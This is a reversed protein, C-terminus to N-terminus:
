LPGLPIEQHGSHCVGLAGSYAKWGRKPSTGGAFDVGTDILAPSALHRVKRAIAPSALKHLAEHFALAGSSPLIIKSAGGKGKGGDSERIKIFRGITNEKVDIHYRKSQIEVTATSLEKEDGRPGKGGKGSRGSKGGKGGSAGRGGKSNGKGKAAAAGRPLPVPLSM